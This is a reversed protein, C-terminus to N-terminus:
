VPVSVPRSKFLSDIGPRVGEIDDLVPVLDDEIEYVDGRVPGAAEDQVLGPYDGFDYLRGMVSARGILRPAAIGHRAAAQGIDNIEGERLTGYIFVYQM